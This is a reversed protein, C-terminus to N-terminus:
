NRGAVTTSIERVAGGETETVGWALLDAFQHFIAQDDPLGYRHMGAGAAAFVCQCPALTAVHADTLPHPRQGCPQQIPGPVLFYADAPKRLLDGPHSAHPDQSSPSSPSLHSGSRQSQSSIGRGGDGPVVAEVQLHLAIHELVLTDQHFVDVLQLSILSALFEQRL